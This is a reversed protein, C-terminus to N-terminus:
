NLTEFSPSLCLGRAIIREVEFECVDIAPETDGMELATLALQVQSRKQESEDAISHGTGFAVLLGWLPVLFLLHSLLRRLRVRETFAM